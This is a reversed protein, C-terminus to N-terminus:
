LFVLAFVILVIVLGIGVNTLDDNM